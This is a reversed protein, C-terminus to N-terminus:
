GALTIWHAVARWRGRHQLRLLYGPLGAGTDAGTAAVYQRIRTGQATAVQQCFSAGAAQGLDTVSVPDPQSLDLEVGYARLAAAM